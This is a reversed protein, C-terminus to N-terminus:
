PREAGGATAGLRRSGVPSDPSDPGGLRSRDASHTGRGSGTRFAVDPGIPSRLGPGVPVLWHGRDTGSASRIWCTAPCTASGDLDEPLFSQGGLTCARPTRDTGALRGDDVGSEHGDGAVRTSDPREQGIWPM